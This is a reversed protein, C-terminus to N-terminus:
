GGGEMNNEEEYINCYKLNLDIRAFLYKKAFM